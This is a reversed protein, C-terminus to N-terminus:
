GTPRRWDAAALRRGCEDLARRPHADRFRRGGAGLRASAAALATTLAAGPEVASLSRHATATRDDVERGALSLLSDLRAALAARDPVVAAAAMSPTGCRLDALEDCLPRDSEHGIASVVPRSCAAVARCVEEDSWPLLSTPDGGGRALIVVEVDPRRELEQLARVISPGAGPGSVTTEQFHVPYGPFREAVISEIDRRVAADAGCVVGICAPLAPLRRRPRDLLGAAALRARTEALLAAIAGEGVPSVEDGRLQLLGRDATWELSGVVRVREGAVVRCRAAAARPVTVDVQAVRDRLTFYIRGSPPTRPRHVEGEVAVTGIAAASRAIEAALRVLSVPRAEHGPERDFLPLTM